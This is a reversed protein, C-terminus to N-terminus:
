GNKSLSEAKNQIIKMAWQAADAASTILQVRDTPYRAEKGHMDKVDVSRTGKEYQIVNALLHAVGDKDFLVVPDGEKLVEEPEDGGVLISRGLRHKAEEEEQAQGKPKAAKQEQADGYSHSIFPQHTVDGNPLMFRGKVNAQALVHDVEPNNLAYLCAVVIANLRQQPQTTPIMLQRNRVSISELGWVASHDPTSAAIEEVSKSMLEQMDKAAQQNSKQMESFGDFDKMWGELGPGLHVTAGAKNAEVIAQFLEGIKM